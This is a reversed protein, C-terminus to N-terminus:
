PAEDLLDIVFYHKEDPVKLARSKQNHPNKAGIQHRSGPTLKVTVPAVLM